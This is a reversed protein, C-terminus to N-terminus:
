IHTFIKTSNIPKKILSGWFTDGTESADLETGLAIPFSNVLDLTHASWNKQMTERERSANFIRKDTTQSSKLVAYRVRVMAAFKLSALQFNWSLFNLDLTSRISTTADIIALLYLRYRRCRCCEGCINRLKAFVINVWAARVARNFPFNLFIYIIIYTLREVNM